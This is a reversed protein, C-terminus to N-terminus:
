VNSKTFTIILWEDFLLEHNINHAQDSDSHRQAMVNQGNPTWNTVPSAPAYNVMYPWSFEISHLAFLDFTM